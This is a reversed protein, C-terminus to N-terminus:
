GGGADIGIAEDVSRFGDRAVLASLRRVVRRVVLPGEYVLGTLMQVMSAGLRIKRYADEATFVGGAGILRYRKRDMRRYFEALTQDVLDQCPKGSVAGPMKALREPTLRLPVPKGPPLNVAFGSVYPAAAVRELFADMEEPHAFPAVKLFVPKAPGAEGVAELLRSLNGPHAFFTRGDCTNPCSLNLVLYTALPAMARVTTVYDDLIEKDSDSAAGAGKNTNVINVGLAHRFPTGRLREAVRSAGDNPLGYNVIIAQDKPSRFLRPKPNGASPSASISGIEVHSFGLAEWLRIGRGSKDFGAALGVPHPLRMGAVDIEVRPGGPALVSELLPCFGPLGSAIEAARIARDHMREGDVRFLM